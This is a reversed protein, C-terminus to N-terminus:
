ERRGRNLFLKVEDALGEHVRRGVHGGDWWFYGDVNGCGYKEPKEFVDPEKVGACWDTTNTFGWKTPTELMKDLVMYVDFVLVTARPHARQFQFASAQLADNFWKV